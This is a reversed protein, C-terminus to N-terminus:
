IESSEWFAFHKDFSFISNLRPIRLEKPIECSEVSLLYKVIYFRSIHDIMAKNSLAHQEPPDKDKNEDTKQM